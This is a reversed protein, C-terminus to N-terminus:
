QAMRNALEVRNALDLRQYIASLHDGVTDPTIDLDSAIERNTHGNAAMRAVERQRDTLEALPGLAPRRAPEIHALLKQGAEGRLDALEVNYGDLLGRWRSRDGNSVPRVVPPSQDDVSTNAEAVDIWTELHRERAGTLWEESGPSAAELTPTEGPAYLLHASREDGTLRRKNLIQVFERLKPKHDHLRNLEHAGFGSAARRFGVLAGVFKRGDYVMLRVTHRIGRETFARVVPDEDSRNSATIDVKTFSNVTGKEPHVPNWLDVCIAPEGDFSEVMDVIAPDGLAHASTYHLEGYHEAMLFYACADLEIISQFQELVETSM